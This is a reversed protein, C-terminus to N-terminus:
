NIFGIEDICTECIRCPCYNPKWYKIESKFASLSESSKINEPVMDWMNVGLNIIAETGFFVTRSNRSLLHVGSRLEDVPNEFFQFIENTM